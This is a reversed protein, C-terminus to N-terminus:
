EISLLDKQITMSTYETTLTTSREGLNRYKRYATRVVTVLGGVTVAATLIL